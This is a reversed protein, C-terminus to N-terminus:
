PTDGVRMSHRTRPGPRPLLDLLRQDPRLAMPVAVAAATMVWASYDLGLFFWISTHMAFVSSAFLLRTSRMALLLPASLELTLAGAALMQALWGHDAIWQAVGVAQPRAGQRLIWAMNESFVWELGSHRVKQAGTLFYVTGLVVLAVRPPWGASVSAERSAGRPPVNAFLMVSAVTVTLLDNHMVKGSSGWLAALAAYASWAVIFGVRPRWRCVVAIVAALGALQIAVLVAAPPTVPIWSIFSTPDTLIRPRQAILTWDRTALRLGIVLALATHVERLRCPPGTAVLRHEIDRM